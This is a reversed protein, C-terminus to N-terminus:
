YNKTALDKVATNELMADALMRKLRNNENELTRLKTADWVNMGGFKANYKNFTADSIRYKRCM